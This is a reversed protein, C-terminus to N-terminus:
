LGIRLHKLIFGQKLDMEYPWTQSKFDDTDKRM